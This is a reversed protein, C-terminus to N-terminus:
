QVKRKSFYVNYQIDAQHQEGGGSSTNHTKFTLIGTNANYEKVFQTSGSGSWTGQDHVPAHLLYGGMSGNEFDWRSAVFNDATFNAYDNPFMNKINFATANGIYVLKEPKSVLVVHFDAYKSVSTSADSTSNTNFSDVLYFSLQGTSANYQKVMNTTATLYTYYQSDHVIGYCTGSITEPDQEVIFFNDATLNGYDSYVSAVDFTRGFGLDIIRNNEWVLRSGYFVRNIQKDGVYLNNPEKGNLYIM